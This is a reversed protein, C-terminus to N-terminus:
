RWKSGRWCVGVVGLVGEALKDPGVRPGGESVSLGGGVRLEPGGWVGWGSADSAITEGSAFALLLVCVGGRLACSRWRGVLLEPLSRMLAASGIALVVVRVRVSCWGVVGCLVRQGVECVVVVWVVRFRLCGSRARVSMIVNGSGEWPWRSCIWRVAQQAGSTPLGPEPMTM